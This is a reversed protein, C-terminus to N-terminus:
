ASHQRTHSTQMTETHMPAEGWGVMEGECIYVSLSEHREGPIGPATRGGTLERLAEECRHHRM